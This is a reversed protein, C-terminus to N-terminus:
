KPRSKSVWKSWASDGYDNFAKVRYRNMGVELGAITATTDQGLTYTQRLVFKGNEHHWWELVFGSENSSNDTWNVLAYVASYFHGIEISLNTPAAPPGTQAKACAAALVALYLATAAVFLRLSALKKGM